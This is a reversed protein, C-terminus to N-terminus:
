KIKNKKSFKSNIKFILIVFYMLFFFYVIIGKSILDLWVDGQAYPRKLNLSFVFVTVYLLKIVFNEFNTMKSLLISTFNFDINIIIQSITKFINKEM